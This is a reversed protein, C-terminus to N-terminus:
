VSDHQTTELDPDPKWLHQELDIQGETIIVGEAVLLHFQLHDNGECHVSYSIRGQANVVRQWPIDSGPSVRYLAYGVQRAQRPIGALNAVQGYTAVKGRPIQCVVRYIQEYRSREALTLRGSLKSVANVNM